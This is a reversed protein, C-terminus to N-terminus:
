ELETILPDESMYVPEQDAATIVLIKEVPINFNIEKKM